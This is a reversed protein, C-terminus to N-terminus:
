KKKSKAREPQPAPEDTIPNKKETLWYAALAPGLCVIIGIPVIGISWFKDMHASFTAPVPRLYLLNMQRAINEKLKMVSKKDNM